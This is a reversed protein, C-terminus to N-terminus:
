SNGKLPRGGVDRRSSREFHSGRDTLHRGSHARGTVTGNSTVAELPTGVAILDIRGNSSRAEVAGVLSRVTIAGNSTTLDAAGEHDRVDISGNSTTADTTGTLGEVEIAGNDSELVLASVDPIEILLSAGERSRRGGDPWDVSVRLTGNGTREVGAQTGDVRGQTEARNEITIRVDTGDDRRERDRSWLRAGSTRTATTRDGRVLDDGFGDGIDDCAAGVLGILLALCM